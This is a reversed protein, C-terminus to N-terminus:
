VTMNEKAIKRRREEEEGGRLRVTDSHCMVQHDIITEVSFHLHVARLEDGRILQTAKMRIIIDVKQTFNSRTLNNNPSESTVYIGSLM